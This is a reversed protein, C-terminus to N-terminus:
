NIYNRSENGFTLNALDGCGLRMLIKFIKIQQSNAQQVEM